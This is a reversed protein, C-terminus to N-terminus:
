RRHHPEDAGEVIRAAERMGNRYDNGVGAQMADATLDRLREALRKRVLSEIRRAFNRAERWEYEKMTADVAAVIEDNSVLPERPM